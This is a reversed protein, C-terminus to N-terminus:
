GSAFRGHQLFHAALTAAQPSFVLGTHSADLVVHDAIGPLQTESVAVSGDHPGAFGAFLHGLGLPSRGAISGVQATGRWEGLGRQLLTSSRGLGWATFPRRALAGAAASGALPSGLCVVRRVRQLEGTPDERLASLAMLGGLSHGVVADFGRLRERLAPLTGEPGAGVGAYGHLETEFGAERLRRALPAMSVGLMWIGHLLLVRPAAGM